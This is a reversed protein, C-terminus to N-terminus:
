MGEVSLELRGDVSQSLLFHFTASQLVRLEIVETSGVALPMPADLELARGAFSAAGADFTMWDATAVKFAYSGPALDVTLSRAGSEAVDFVLNTGWDNMDGRLMLPEGLNALDITPAAMAPASVVTMEGSLVADADAAVQLPGNVVPAAAVSRTADLPFADEADNVGDNDSDAVQPNTGLAAEQDDSLGDGDSDRIGWVSLPAGMEVARDTFHQADLEISSEEATWSGNVDGVLIAVFSVDSQDPYSVSYGESTDYVASREIHTEWLNQRDEAFSWFPTIADSLGVAIKLIALADSSTVRGDSNIDAAILQYPSLPMSELPGDGDPDPNPNLGVAIKLAALADASTVTKVLDRAAVPNSASVTYSAPALGSM